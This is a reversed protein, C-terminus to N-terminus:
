TEQVRERCEGGEAEDSDDDTSRLSGVFESLRIRKRLEILRVVMEPDASMFEVPYRCVRAVNRAIASSNPAVPKDGPSVGGFVKWSEPVDRLTKDAHVLFLVRTSIHLGPVQESVNEPHVTTWMFSGAVNSKNIRMLDRLFLTRGKLLERGNKLHTACPLLINGASSVLRYHELEKGPETTFRVFKDFREFVGTVRRGWCWPCILWNQCPRVTGYWDSGGKVFLMGGPWCNRGYQYNAPKQLSEWGAERLCALRLRWLLLLREGAAVAAEEYGTKNLPPAPTLGTIPYLVALRAAHYQVSKPCGSFSYAFDM